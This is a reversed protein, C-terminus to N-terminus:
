DISDNKGYLLELKRKEAYAKPIKPFEMAKETTTAQSDASDASPKAKKWFSSLLGTGSGGAGQTARSFFSGMTKGVAPLVNEKPESPVADTKTSNKKLSVKKAESTEPMPVSAKSSKSKKKQAISKTNTEEKDSVEDEVPVEKVANATKGTKVPEMEVDSQDSEPIVKKIAKAQKKTTKAPVEDEETKSSLIPEEVKKTKKKTVKVPVTEEESIESEIIAKKSAKNKKKNNKVPVEEEDPAADVNKSKGVSLLPIEELEEDTDNKSPKTPSL